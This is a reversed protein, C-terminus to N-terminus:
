KKSEDSANQLMQAVISKTDQNSLKTPDIARSPIAGSGSGMLIPAPRRARIKTVMESWDKYAQEPTIDHHVMRMIIQEEDIDEGYKSKLDSLSKELLADQEKIAKEAVSQQREGIAIQALTDIQQQMTLIRPDIGAEEATKEVEKVAAQAQQPTIGLHKGITEYVKRPDNEIINFISLATNAQDPTIGSKQLDDWQKLPEFAGLREKIRPALEARRDEPLAGVIDNWETGLGEYLPMEGPPTPQGM